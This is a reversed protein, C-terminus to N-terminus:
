DTISFNVIKTVKKARVPLKITGLTMTTEGSYGLVPRPTPVILTMDIKM